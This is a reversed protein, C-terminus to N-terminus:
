SLPLSSPSNSHAETSLRWTQWFDRPSESPSLDRHGRRRLGSGNSMNLTSSMGKISEFQETADLLRRGLLVRRSSSIAKKPLFCSSHREGLIGLFVSPRFSHFVHSYEAAECLFFRMYDSIRKLITPFHRRRRSLRAIEVHTIQIAWLLRGSTTSESSM